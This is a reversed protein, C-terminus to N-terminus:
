APGQACRAGRGQREQAFSILAHAARVSSPTDTLDFSSAFLAQQVQRYRTAHLEEARALASSLEQPRSIVEGATWHLFNPDGQWAVGHSNLFICPRPRLMFEYVQSSAEGLYIDAAQTYTMDASAASGLDIHTTDGRLLHTPIDGARNISLKDITIVYPRQFLMVHPAFLLGYAHGMAQFQEFVRRGDRYWSSLHPSPHPNYLVVKDATPLFRAPPDTRVLDFKPYGVIRIAEPRIGAEAMLRDRIKPGSCLIYDFASSAKNFGIARDGAGHRTHVIALQTMGYRQKLVLSTKESVVLMDLSRFFPLNDRYILLKAAPVWRGLARDVRQSLPSPALEVHEIRTGILPGGIRRVEAALVPNTTVVLIEAAFNTDALALAIPLSHAVQHIQDHNFLFAIRM